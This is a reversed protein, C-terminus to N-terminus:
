KFEDFPDTPKVEAAGGASIDQALNLTEGSASLNFNAKITNLEAVNLQSKDVPYVATANIFLFLYNETEKRKVIQTNYIKASAVTENNLTETVTFYSKFFEYHVSKDLGRVAKLNKNLLIKLGIGGGLLAAFIILLMLFWFDDVAPFVYEAIVYLVLFAATGISGFILLLLAYISLGGSLEKQMNEDLKAGAKISGYETVM